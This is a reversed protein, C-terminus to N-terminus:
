QTLPLRVAGNSQADGAAIRIEPNAPSDAPVQINIQYLGAFGPALGAYFIHDRPLAVGNLTVSFSDMAILRAAQRAVEGSRLAPGTTNGLGTAFLILIDGARAPNDVTVLSGDLRVALVLGPQWLFLGPAASSIPLDVVPGARGDLALHLRHSGDKIGAPVLLNVQTPSVFYLPAPVGDIYVRVGTNPFITPLLGDRVDEGVLGRTVYSLDKGYLTVITNPAFAGSEQSAAHVVTSSAYSPAFRRAAEDAGALLRVVLLGALLAHAASALM